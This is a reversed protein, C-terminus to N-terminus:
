NTALSSRRSTCRKRANVIGDTIKVSTDGSFCKVQVQDGNYYTTYYRTKSGSIFEELYQQSVDIPQSKYEINDIPAQVVFVRRRRQGEAAREMVVDDSDVDDEAKDHWGQSVNYHEHLRDPDGLRERADEDDKNRAAM